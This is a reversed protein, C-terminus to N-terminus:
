GLMRDSQWPKPQRNSRSGLARARLMELADRVVMSKTPGTQRAIREFLAAMEKM